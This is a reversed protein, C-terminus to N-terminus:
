LVHHFVGAASSSLAPLLVTSSSAFSCQNLWAFIRLDSKNKLRLLKSAQYQRKITDSDPNQNEQPQSYHFLEM